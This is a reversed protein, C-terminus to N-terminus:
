LAPRKASSGELAANVTALVDGPESPKPILCDIGALEMFQRMASDVTTATYLAVKVPRAGAGSRLARILDVGDMGPLHLDVIVLDPSREQAIRLGDIGDAAELVSHGGAQLIAKLLARNAALDDVVLVTAM